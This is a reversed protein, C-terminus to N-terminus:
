FNAMDVKRIVCSPYFILSIAGDPDEGDGLTPIIINVAGNSACREIKSLTEFGCCLDKIMGM